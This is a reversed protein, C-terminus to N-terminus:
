QSRLVASRARNTELGSVAVLETPSFTETVVVHDGFELGIFRDEQCVKDTLM